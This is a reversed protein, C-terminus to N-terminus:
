EYADLQWFEVRKQLQRRDLEGQVTVVCANGQAWLPRGGSLKSTDAQGHNNPARRCGDGEQRKDSRGLEGWEENRGLYVAGGGRTCQAFVLNHWEIGPMLAMPTLNVSCQHWSM